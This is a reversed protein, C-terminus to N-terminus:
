EAEVYYQAQARWMESYLGGSGILDDHSGREKIEGQDLVIIRDCFRCSSLRHSIYIAAKGKTLSNFRSYIEAEVIPDLASTPEDLMLIPADRYLVRSMALKQGEGGSFEVGSTDFEKSINTDLGRPLSRVKDGLGGRELCELIAGDDANRGFTVNERVSFGFLKYDQFVAGIAKIYEDFAWSRIDTGNLTIEGETPEYLRCILKVLTTKGAGNLGVLSVSEGQRVSFSVNKLIYRDTGPYKFSVNKLELIAGDGVAVPSTDATNHKSKKSLEVLFRFDKVFIGTEMFSSVAGIISGICGSFTNISSLYLSFDGVTLGSFIVRRCLVFYAVAEQIIGAGSSFVENRRIEKNHAKQMKMYEDGSKTVKKFVWDELGGIRVEKGYEVSGMVRLLYGVRRMVPSYRPRWKEWLRRNKRDAILRFLVSVAIPLFLIPQITTIVAGLGIITIVSGVISALRDLVQSFNTGDKALAIFDRIRPQEADSYPLDAVTEGLRNNIKREAAAIRESRFYDLITVSVDKIFTVTAMSLVYVLVRKIDRGVTIENLILRIFIMPIFPSVVNVVIEAAKIFFISRDIGYAFKMLFLCNSMLGKRKM